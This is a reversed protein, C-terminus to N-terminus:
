LKVITMGNVTIMEPEAYEEEGVEDDHDDEHEENNFGGNYDGDFGEMDYTEPYSQYSEADSAPDEPATAEYTTPPPKRSSQRSAQRSSQRSPQQSPQRSAQQSPQKPPQASAQRSPHRSTTRSSRRSTGNREADDEDVKQVKIPRGGEEEGPSSRKRTAETMEIMEIDHDDDVDLGAAGATGGAASESTSIMTAPTTSRSRSRGRKSKSDDVDVGTLVPSRSPRTSHSVSFGGAEEMVPVTIGVAVANTASAMANTASAMATAAVIVSGVTTSDAGEDFLTGLWAERFKLGIALAMHRSVSNGVLKWQDATRGVLVEEDLYGQARRMEHVTYPRPEDWHLGPGMRADSPNCTTTVTPFLTKPNLRRWGVSADSTRTTGESPFLGRDGKTMIGNGKNWAKNFSMGYPHTPICAYQARNKPTIGAALRHDPFPTCVEVKADGVKPLDATSEGASVFKFATPVFIRQVYSEGNCLFGINRNKDRYHSHSPLPPSPLPLGPAAFYLFVRERSQPAGHAWADGLTLQAQYGMGILACFLQSLVDQKRNVFTQVIGSVNELVGYKPRYFDVFSAFSAVLSQNKVQNLVKKDQTLLSFGPCPSGAAIFDVEGPRPVNDSFKGELALRLLDDVSGLFPNTKEPDPTNAMYTHIAKDWIDNAWRMEVVGGEELGRGFNGGGCYLDMGKLKPKGLLNKELPNFGQRLTSPFTKLPVCKGDDELGHTIFFINGTGGRDYPSPIREDARFFRVLCKGVIREGRVEVLDLDETYVLENAPADPRDVKRRRLLKRLRVFPKEKEKEGQRFFEVVEYPESYRDSPSLTALVTDGPKYPPTPPKPPQNHYCTLHAEQVTVWRRQESEYLQRVFFEGKCSEPTGFWDVPHVALVENGKVRAHHGEQCTCHNSLFLENRWKYKMACCPTDEPRYFWIVDFSKPDLGRGSKTKTTHVKQVLGFWRHDDTDAPKWKTDTNSSDDRPTSIVDGVKIQDVLEQSLYKIYAPHIQKINPRPTKAKAKAKAKARPKVNEKMPPPLNSGPAPLVDSSVISIVDSDVIPIVESVQLPLPQLPISLDETMTEDKTDAKAETEINETTDQKVRKALKTLKVQRDKEKEADEGALRLVKGLIMHDFCEKIYPTVITAAVTRDGETVLPGPPVEQRLYQGPKVLMLERFLRDGAARRAGAVGNVEKWIYGINAAVSTRYDDSRHQARWMRFAKSKGHAKTAWQIFDGKSKFCGLTVERKREVMRTCYDVVHKGLDAIWLFPQYFRQYELAPTKLLYYIEKKANLKSRVWIQGEVSHLSAGYNGVPLEMVQMGTVYHKTNGFKLVGDFCYKDHLMKTAVLHIPRMEQPHHAYNVYFNFDHLEFEIYDEKSKGAAKAAKLLDEVAIREPTSPPPPIPNDKREDVRQFKSRPNVLTSVPLDVTIHKSRQVVFVYDPGEDLVGDTAEDSFGDPLDAEDESEPVPGTDEGNQGSEAQFQQELELQLQLQPDEHSPPTITTTTTPPPQVYDGDTALGQSLVSAFMDLYDEQIGMVDTPVDIFMGGHGRDPSDM